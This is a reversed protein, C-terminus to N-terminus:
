ITREPSITIPAILERKIGAQSTLTIKILVSDVSVSITDLTSGAYREDAPDTPLEEALLNSRVTLESVNFSQRVDAATKWFGQRAETMFISGRNPLYIMSGTSTLLELLYRQALKQIGTAVYGGNGSTMLEQTLKSSSLGEYDADLFALVDVTRGVYDAITSM